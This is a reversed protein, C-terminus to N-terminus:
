AHSAELMDETLLVDPPIARRVRRGLLDGILYPALGTGPGKACLASRELVEGAVIARTTVLSKALRDRVAREAPLITKPHVVLAAEVNRIDRVLRRLGEPELSASHDPGKMARDLSFHREIVSAGLVVAAVSTAIGREHGSHGHLVSYRKGLKPGYRLNLESNAAPYVSCCNLLVLDQTSRWITRVARDIEEETSMGTSLVVPMGMRAVAELLPPNTLDCSAVKVCPVGLDALIAASLLDYPTAFFVLGLSEARAKLRPWAEDPLELALRHAGYNAGFSRENVYPVAQAHQTLISDIHRRQFKIADVQCIAAVEIMKAALAPDGNHNVGIEAVIFCPRGEGIERDGIRLRKM